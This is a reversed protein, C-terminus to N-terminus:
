KKFGLERLREALFEGATLNEYHRPNEADICSELCALDM